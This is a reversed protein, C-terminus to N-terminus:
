GRQASSCSLGCCNGSDSDTHCICRSETERLAKFDIPIEVSPKERRRLSRKQLDPEEKEAQKQLEMYEEGAQKEEIYKCIGVIGFLLGLLICLIAAIRRKKM